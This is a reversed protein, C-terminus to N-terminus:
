TDLTLESFELGCYLFGERIQIILDGQSLRQQVILFWDLLLQGVLYGGYLKGVTLRVFFKFGCNNVLSFLDCQYLSFHPM